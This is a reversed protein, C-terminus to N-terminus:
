LLKSTIQFAMIKLVLIVKGTHIYVQQCLIFHVAGNLIEIKPFIWNRFNICLKWSGQFWYIFLWHNCCNKETKEKELTLKMKNMAQTPSSFCSKQVNWASLFKYIKYPSFLCFAWFLFVSKKRKRKRENKCTLTHHM